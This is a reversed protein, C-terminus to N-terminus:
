AAKKYNEGTKVMHLIISKGKQFKIAEPEHVLPSNFANNPISVSLFRCMKGMDELPISGSFSIHGDQIAISVDSYREATGEDNRAHKRNDYVYSSVEEWKGTTTKVFFRNAM